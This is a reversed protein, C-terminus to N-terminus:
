QTDKEDIALKAVLENYLHSPPYIREIGVSTLKKNMSVKVSDGEERRMIGLALPTNYSILNNDLDSEGWGGITYTRIDDDVSIKVTVGIAVVDNQEEVKVLQADSIVTMLDNLIRSELELRRKADEYGFNDHWDCAIGAEEGAEKGIDNVKQKQIEIRKRILEFGKETFYTPMTFTKRIYQRSYEFSSLTFLM